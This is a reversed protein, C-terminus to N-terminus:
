SRCRRRGDGGLRIEALRKELDAVTANMAEANQAFEKASRDVRTTLAAM